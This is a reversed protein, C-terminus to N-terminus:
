ATNKQLLLEKIEQMEKQTAPKDLESKGLNKIIKGQNGVPSEGYSNPDNIPQQTRFKPEL